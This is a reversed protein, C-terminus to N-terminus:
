YLFGIEKFGKDRSQNKYDYNKIDLIHHYGMGNLINIKISMSNSIYPNKMILNAIIENIEKMTYKKDKYQELVGFNTVVKSVESPYCMRISKFDIYFRKENYFDM